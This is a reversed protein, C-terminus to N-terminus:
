DIKYYAVKEEKRLKTYINDKERKCLRCRLRIGEKKEGKKTIWKSKEIITNVEHLLGHKKCIKQM